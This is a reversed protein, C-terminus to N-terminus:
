TDNWKLDPVSRMDSNAVWRTRTRAPAVEEFFVLAAYVATDVQQGNTRRARTVDSARQIPYLEQDMTSTIRTLLAPNFFTCLTNFLQLYKNHILWDCRLLLVLRYVTLLSFAACLVVDLVVSSSTVLHGLQMARLHLEWRILFIVSKSLTWVPRISYWGTIQMSKEGGSICSFAGCTLLAPEFLVCTCKTKTWGTM